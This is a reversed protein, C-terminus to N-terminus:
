AKGLRCFSSIKRRDLSEVVCSISGDDSLKCDNLHIEFSNVGSQVQSVRHDDKICIENKFWSVSKIDESNVEDSLIVKFVAEEGEFAITDKLITSFKMLPEQETANNDKLSLQNVNEMANLLIDDQTKTTKINLLTHKTSSQEQSLGVQVPPFSNASEGLATVARVTVSFQQKNVDLGQIVANTKAASVVGRPVGDVVLKYSLVSVQPYGLNELPSGM